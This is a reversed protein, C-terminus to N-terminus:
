SYSCSSRWWFYKFFFQDISVGLSKSNKPKSLVEYYGGEMLPSVIKELRFDYM